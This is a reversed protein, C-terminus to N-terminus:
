KRVETALHTRRDRKASQAAAPVLAFTSVASAILGGRIGIFQVLPGGLVLGIPAAVATGAAWLTLVPQQEHPGLLGQVLSYAVPTFPAYILGGVALAIGAVVANPAAALLVICGAWGAIISVLLATQPLRRLQNTAVAGVLAGIGFSTWIAGLAGASAHFPGRVLLPLAVEVPMYFFNFFFVVVFLWAAM